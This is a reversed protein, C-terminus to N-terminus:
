GEMSALALQLKLVVTLKEFGPREAGTWREMLGLPGRAHPQGLCPCLASPHFFSTDVENKTCATM